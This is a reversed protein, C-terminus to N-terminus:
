GLFSPATGELAVLLNIRSRLELQNSRWSTVSSTTPEFGMPGAIALLILIGNPRMLRVGYPRYRGESRFIPTHHLPLMTTELDVQKPEFGSVEALLNIIRPGTDSNAYSDAKSASIQPNM